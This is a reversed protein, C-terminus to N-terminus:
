YLITSWLVQLGFKHISFFTLFYSPPSNLEGLQKHHIFVTVYLGTLLKILFFVEIDHNDGTVCVHLSTLKTNFPVFKLADNYQDAIKHVCDTKQMNIKDNKQPGVKEKAEVVQMKEKQICPLFCAYSVMYISCFNYANSM